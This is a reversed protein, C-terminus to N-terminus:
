DQEEEEKEEEEEEEEEEQEQDSWLGDAGDMNNPNGLPDPPVLRLILIDQDLRVQKAGHHTVIAMDVRTSHPLHWARVLYAGLHKVTMSPDSFTTVMAPMAALAPHDEANALVFKAELRRKHVGGCVHMVVRLTRPAGAGEREGSGAGGGAGEADNCASM